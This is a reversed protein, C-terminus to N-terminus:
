DSKAVLHMETADIGSFYDAESEKKSLGKWTAAVVFGISAAIAWEIVRRNLSITMLKAGISPDCSLEQDVARRWKELRAEGAKVNKLPSLLEKMESDIQDNNNNKM